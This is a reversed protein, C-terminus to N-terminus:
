LEVESPNIFQGAQEGGDVRICNGGAYRGDTALFYCWKAVELPNSPRLMPINAFRIKMWEEITGGRQKVLDQYTRKDMNTGHIIGVDLQIIAWKGKDDRNFERHASMTIYQLARKSAGYAQTRTRPIYATDSGLNIVTKDKGNEKHTRFYHQMVNWVSWVNIELTKMFNEKDKANLINVGQANVVVDIRLGNEDFWDFLDVVDMEDTADVVFSVYRGKDVIDVGYVDFGKEDFYQAITEGVSGEACGVILAVKKM